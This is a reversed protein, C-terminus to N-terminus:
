EWEADTPLRYRNGTQRSLWDTFATAMDWTVYNQPLQSTSAGSGMVDDWWEETVETSSIYFGQTLTM